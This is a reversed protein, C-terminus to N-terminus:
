QAALVSGGAKAVAEKAGASLRLNGEQVKLAVELEGSLMVKVYKTNKRILGSKKLLEIDVTEASHDKLKNLASLPLQQSCLSKRSTFGFKPVRRQLPMQGGEFSAKVRGGSRSKLGKHGRTATKGMGSGMGRAVRRKKSKAGLAPTLQNQKV